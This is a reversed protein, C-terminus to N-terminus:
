HVCAPARPGVPEALLRHAPMTRGSNDRAVLEFRGVMLRQSREMLRTLQEANLQRESQLAAGQESLRRLTGPRYVPDWWPAASMPRCTATHGPGPAASRVGIVEVDVDATQYGDGDSLVAVPGGHDARGVPPRRRAPPVFVVRGVETIDDLDPGADPRGDGASALLAAPLRRGVGASQRAPSTPPAGAVPDSVGAGAAQAIVTRSRGLTRSLGAVSRGAAAAPGAGGPAPRASGVTITRTGKRRAPTRILGASGGKAGTMKGVIGLDRPEAQRRQRGASLSFDTADVAATPTSQADSINAPRSSEIQPGKKICHVLKLHSELSYVNSHSINCLKCTLGSVHHMYMVWYLRWQVDHSNLHQSLALSQSFNTDCITCSTLSLSSELREM